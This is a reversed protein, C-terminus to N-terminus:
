FVPLGSAPAPCGPHSDAQGVAPRPAPTHAASWLEWLAPAARPSTPAWPPPCGRGAGRSVTGPVGVHAPSVPNLSSLPRGVGGEPCTLSEKEKRGGGGGGSLVRQPFCVGLTGVPGSGVEVLAWRAGDGGATEMGRRGEALGLMHALLGERTM